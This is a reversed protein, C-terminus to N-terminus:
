DQKLNSLKNRLYSVDEKLSKTLNRLLHLEKRVEEDVQEFTKRDAIQNRESRYMMGLVFGIILFVFDIM